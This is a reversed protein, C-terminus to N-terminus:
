KEAHITFMLHFHIVVPDGVKIAGFMLKPPKIGYDSMLLKYEGVVLLAEPHTEATGSLSIEKQVGAITLQGTAHFAVPGDQAPPLAEYHILSFHIEPAKDSKMAKYLNKDLASDGSKLGKVPVIVEFKQFPARQAITLLVAQSSGPAPPANEPTLEAIVQTLTSTSSFSHLTSTGSLGLSSSPQLILRAVCHGAPGMFSLILFTGVLVKATGGFRRMEAANGKLNNM